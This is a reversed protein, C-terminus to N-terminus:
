EGIGKNRWNWFGYIHFGLSIFCGITQVCLGMCANRLAWYCLCVSWIIFCLRKGRVNLWRGLKGLITFILDTIEGM